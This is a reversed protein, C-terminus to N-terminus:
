TKRRTNREAEMYFDRLKRAYADPVWRCMQPGTSTMAPAMVTPVKLRKLKKLLNSRDTGIEDSLEGVLIYGQM